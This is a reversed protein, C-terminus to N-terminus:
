IIYSNQKDHAREMICATSNDHAKTGSLDVHVNIANSMLQIRAAPAICRLVRALERTTALCQMREAFYYNLNSKALARALLYYRLCSPTERRVVAAVANIDAVHNIFDHNIFYTPAVSFFPKSSSNRRAFPSFAGFRVLCNAIAEYRYNFKHFNRENTSPSHFFLLTPFLSFTHTSVYEIRM